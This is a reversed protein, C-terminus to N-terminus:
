VCYLTCLRALLYSSITKFSNHNKVIPNLRISTVMWTVHLFCINCFSFVYFLLLLTYTVFCMAFTSVYFPFSSTLYLVIFANIKIFSANSFFDISLTSLLSPTFSMSITFIRMLWLHLNTSVIHSFLSNYCNM